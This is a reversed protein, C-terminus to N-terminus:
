KFWKFKNSVCGYLLSVSPSGGEQVLAVHSFKSRKSVNDLSPSDASYM